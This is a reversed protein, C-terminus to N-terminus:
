QAWVPLRREAAASQTQLNRNELLNEWKLTDGAQLEHAGIKTPERTSDVTASEPLAVKTVTREPLEARNSILIQYGQDVEADSEIRITVGRSSSQLSAAIADVEADTLQHVKRRAANERVDSKVKTPMPRANAAPTNSAVQEEQRDNSRNERRYLATLSSADLLKYIEKLGAYLGSNRERDAAMCVGILEGSRNFLGGGSRGSVPAQTCEIISSGVFQDISKVRMQWRTPLEGNGCGVSFVLDRASIAGPNSAIRISPLVRDPKIAVLGVDAKDDFRILKGTWTTPEEGEFYDVAIRTNSDVGRFIHGCSLILTYEPRSEIITGTGFNISGGQNVRLRVSAEMPNRTLPDSKKVSVETTEDDNQGRIAEIDEATIEKSKGLFPLPIGRRYFPRDDKAVKSEEDLNGGETEGRPIQAMLGALTAESQPGILRKKPKGDIVLVFQPISDVGYRAALEPHKDVDVKRIPYGKRRLREVTPAVSQCPGCWTATFDLLEGQPAGGLSSLTLILASLSNM